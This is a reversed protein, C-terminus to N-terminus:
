NLAFIVVRKIGSLDTFMDKFILNHIKGEEILDTEQNIGIEFFALGEKKLLDKLRPFICRYSDLGDEGGDLSIIPDFKQVELDLEFIKKSPIYPPNAIVIDFRAEEEKISEKFFNLTKKGWEKKFWDSCYFFSRNELNYRYSNIEAQKLAGRSTDFFCVKSNFYEYLLSLGICGSGCGLDLISLKQSMNPYFKILSSILTETDARPDLTDENILFNMKWFNRNGLLRSVPKGLKRQEILNDFYLIEKDSIEIDEHPYIQRNLGMAHGLLIRSDLQPSEKKFASLDEIAKNLIIRAEINQKLEIM